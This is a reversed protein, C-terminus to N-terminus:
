KENKLNNNFERVKDFVNLWENFTIWGAVCDENGTDGRDTFKGTIYDKSNGDIWVAIECNNSSLVDMISVGDLLKDAFEIVDNPTRSKNECYNGDQFQTSLVTGNPFKLHFGGYRANFSKMTEKEGAM